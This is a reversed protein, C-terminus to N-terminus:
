YATKQCGEWKTKSFIKLHQNVRFKIILNAYSNRIM